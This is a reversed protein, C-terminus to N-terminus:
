STPVSACCTAFATVISNTIEAVAGRLGDVHTCTNEEKAVPADDHKVAFGAGEVQEDACGRVCRQRCTRAVRDRESEDSSTLTSSKWSWPSAPLVRWRRFPPPLVEGEQEENGKSRVGERHDHADELALLLCSFFLFLFFRFFFLFLFLPLLPFFTFLPLPHLLSSSCLRPSPSWRALLTTM